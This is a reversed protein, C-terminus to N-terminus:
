STENYNTKMELGRGVDEGGWEPRGRNKWTETNRRGKKKPVFRGLNGLDKNDPVKTM